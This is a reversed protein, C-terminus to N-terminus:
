VIKAPPSVSEPRLENYNRAGASYAIGGNSESVGARRFKPWHTVASLNFVGIRALHPLAVLADIAYSM